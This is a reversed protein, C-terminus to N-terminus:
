LMQGTHPAIVLCEDVFNLSDKGWLNSPIFNDEMISLHFNLKIVCISQWMVIVVYSWRANECHFDDICLLFISQLKLYMKFQVKIM